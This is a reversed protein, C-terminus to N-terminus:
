KKHKNTEHLIVMCLWLIITGGFIYASLAINKKIYGIIPSLILSIICLITVIWFAINRRNNEM